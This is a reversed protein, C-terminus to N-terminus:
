RRRTATRRWWRATPPQGTELHRSRRRGAIQLNRAQRRQRKLAAAQRREIETLRTRVDDGDPSRRARTQMPTLGYEDDDTTRRLHVTAVAGLLTMLALAWLPNM